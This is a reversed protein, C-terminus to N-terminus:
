DSRRERPKRVLTYAWEIAERFSECTTALNREALIRSRHRKGMGRVESVHNKCWQLRDVFALITREVDFTSEVVLGTVNKEVTEPVCGVNTALVARGCAGAEFLSMPNGEYLPESAILVLDVDNYFENLMERTPVSAVRLEVGAQACAPRIVSDLRKMANKPNGTWGVVLDRAERDRIWRFTNTDVGEKVLRTAPFAKRIVDYQVQNPVFCAIAGRLSTRLARYPLRARQWKHSNIGRVYRGYFMDDYSCYSWGPNFMLDYHGPEIVPTELVYQIDTSWSSAIHRARQQCIEDFAWGRVNALALLRRSRDAQRTRDTPTPTRLARTTSEARIVVAYASNAIRSLGLFRNM